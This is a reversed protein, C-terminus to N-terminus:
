TDVSRSAMARLCLRGDAGRAWLDVGQATPEACFAIEEQDFAPSVARFDFIKVQGLLGEAIQLLIQALLPGHVVLAPYGEVQQAYDRDYHIRHGNFTLASYRFLDTTTFRRTRCIVESTPAQLRQAPTEQATTEARYILSQKESLCLQGHQSIEHDITVIALPGSRGAKKQVDTVTSRKSAKEGLVVPRHFVLEGGAWMRRPLGLDPIFGGTKPHGDRGLAAPSLAEWFYAHHWFLPLPGGVSPAPGPLNLMAHMAIAREPDLADTRIRPLSPTEM